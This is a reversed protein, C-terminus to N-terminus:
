DKAPPKPAPKPPVAPPPIVVPPIPLAPMVPVLGGGFGGGFFVPGQTRTNTDLSYAVPAGVLKKWVAQQTETLGAVARKLGEARIKVREKEQKESDIAGPRIARPLGPLGPPTPTLQSLEESVKKANEELQEKQKPTLELM